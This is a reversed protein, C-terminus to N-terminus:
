VGRTMLLEDTLAAVLVRQAPTLRAFKLSMQADIDDRREMRGRYQAANPSQRIAIPTLRMGEAQTGGDTGFALWHASVQLWGALVEIKDMTPRTKGTLWAYASQRSIPQFQYRQNFERELTAAGTVAVKAALLSKQLRAAFGAQPADPSPLTFCNQKTRM